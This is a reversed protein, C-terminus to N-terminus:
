NFPKSLSSTLGEVYDDLYITIKPLFSSFFSYVLVNGQLRSQMDQILNFSIEGKMKELDLFATGVVTNFKPIYDGYNELAKALRKYLDVVKTLQTLIRLLDEKAFSVTNEDVTVEQSTLDIRGTEKIVSVKGGPLPYSNSMSDQSVAFKADPLKLKDLKQILVVADNTDKIKSIDKFLNLEVAYYGELEQAFRLILDMQSILHDLDKELSSLDGSSTLRKIQENTFTLVEPPTGMKVQNATRAIFQKRTGLQKIVATATNRFGVRAADGAKAMVYQTGQQLHSKVSSFIDGLASENGAIFEEVEIIPKFVQHLDEADPLEDAEVIIAQIEAAASAFLDTLSGGPLAPIAGQENENESPM